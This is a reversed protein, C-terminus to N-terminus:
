ELLGHDGKLEELDMTLLAGYQILTAVLWLREETHAVCIYRLLAHLFPYSVAEHSEPRM